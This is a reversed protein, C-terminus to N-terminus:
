KGIQVQQGLPPFMSLTPGLKGMGKLGHQLIGVVRSAKTVHFLYHLDEFVSPPAESQIDELRLGPLESHGYETRIAWIKSAVPVSNIVVPPCHAGYENPSPREPSLPFLQSVPPGSWTGTSLPVFAESTATAGGGEDYPASVMDPEDWLIMGPCKALLLFDIGPSLALGERQCFWLSALFEDTVLVQSYWKTDELVDKWSIWGYKGLRIGATNPSDDVFGARHRCMDVMIRMIHLMTEHRRERDVRALCEHEMLSEWKVPCFPYLTRMELPDQLDSFM